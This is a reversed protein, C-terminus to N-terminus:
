TCYTIIWREKDLGISTPDTEISGLPISIAGAVHSAQYAEASRVDM